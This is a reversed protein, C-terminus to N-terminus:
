GTSFTGLVDVLAVQVDRAKGRFDVVFLEDSEETGDTRNTM